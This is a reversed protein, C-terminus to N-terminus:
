GRHKGASNAEREKIFLLYQNLAASMRNHMRTNESVFNPSSKLLDICLQVDEFTTYSFISDAQKDVERNIWERVPRDLTNTYSNATSEPRRWALFAHFQEKIGTWKNVKPESLSDDVEAENEKKMEGIRRRRKKVKKYLYPHDSASFLSGDDKKVVIKREGEKTTFRNIIVGEIQSPFLKVRTGMPVFDDSDEDTVQENGVENEKVENEIDDASIGLRGIETRAINGKHDLYVHEIQLNNHEEEDKTWYNEKRNEPYNENDNINIPVNETNESTKTTREIVEYLYPLDDIEIVNGNITKVVIKKTGNKDITGIIEGIQLTPIIRITYGIRKDETSDTSQMKDSVIHNTTAMYDSYAFDRQHSDPLRIENQVSHKEGDEVKEVELGLHLASNIKSIQNFKVDTSSYTCVYLGDGISKQASRYIPNDNLKSSVLNDGMCIIQLQRVREPRAYKIVDVLTEWVLKKCSIRGDPYKVKIIYRLSQRKEPLKQSADEWSEMMSPAENIYTQLRERLKSSFTWAPGWKTHAVYFGGMARFQKKHPKTNGIVAISYKGYEVIKLKNSLSIDGDIDRSKAKEVNLPYSLEPTNSQESEASVSNDNESDESFEEIKENIAYELIPSLPLNYKSILKLILKLEEKTTM